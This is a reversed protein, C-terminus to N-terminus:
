ASGTETFYAEDRYFLYILENLYRYGLETPEIVGATCDLLGRAVAEKITPQLLPYPLGTRGIFLLPSFGGKLRLANMMFEVVAQGPELTQREALVATTGAAKMYARPHRCKAFRMITHQRNDTIKSHAGAGIGLYDGFEWYNLNHCCRKGERAYASVEYHAYGHAALLMQGQQQMAWLADDDPLPPPRHYFVTNPEITLQYWSLHDPELMLATTLDELAGSVHDEPLGFMLDLNVNDFGAARTAQYATLSEERGHIRGISRLQANRFSQVGISLRNVGSARYEQLRSATVTGPNSELTIELEPVLPLRARLGDLLLAIAKGSFLSPTGGGIFVRIIPRDGIAPLQQDLDRLLAAVYAHEPVEGQVEHSNFDCYPCKRVCWPLHVYLSLPPLERVYL